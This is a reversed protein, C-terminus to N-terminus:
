AFILCTFPNFNQGEDFLFSKIYLILTKLWLSMYTDWKCIPNLYSLNHFKSSCTQTKIRFAM